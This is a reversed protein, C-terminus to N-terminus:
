LFIYSATYNNRHTMTDYQYYHRCRRGNSDYWFPLSLTGYFIPKMGGSYSGGDRVKDGRLGCRRVGGDMGRAHAGTPSYAM